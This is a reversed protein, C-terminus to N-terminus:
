LLKRVDLTCSELPSCVAVKTEEEDSSADGSESRDIDSRSALHLIRTVSEQARSDSKKLAHFVSDGDAETQCFFAIRSNARLATAANARATGFKALFSKRGLVDMFVVRRFNVKHLVSLQICKQPRSEVQSSGGRSAMWGPKGKSVGIVAFGNEDVPIATDASKIVDFTTLVIDYQTAKEATALRVRESLPASAVNYVSCGTGERLAREWQVLDEKSRAVILTEGQLLNTTTSAGAGRERHQRDSQSSSLFLKLCLDIIQQHTMSFLVNVATTEVFTQWMSDHESRALSEFVDHFVQKEKLPYKVFPDPFDVLRRTPAIGDELRRVGPVLESRQVHLKELHFTAGTKMGVHVPMDRLTQKSRGRESGSKYTSNWTDITDHTSRVAHQSPKRSSRDEAESDSSSYTLKPSIPSQSAPFLNDKLNPVITGENTPSLISLRDINNSSGLDSGRWEGHEEQDSESSEDNPMGVQHNYRIRSLDAGRKASSSAPRKYPNTTSSTSAAGATSDRYPPSDTSVPSTTDKAAARAIEVPSSTSRDHWSPDTRPSDSSSDHNPMAFSISADDVGHINGPEDDHDHLARRHSLTQEGGEAEQRRGKGIRLRSLLAVVRQQELLQESRSLSRYDRLTGAPHRQQFTQISAKVFAEYKSRYITENPGVMTHLPQRSTAMPKVLSQIRPKPSPPSLMSEEDHFIEAFMTISGEDEREGCTPSSGERKPPSETGSHPPLRLSSRRESTPVVTIGLAISDDLLLTMSQDYLITTEDYEHDNDDDEEEEQEEPLPAVPADILTPM